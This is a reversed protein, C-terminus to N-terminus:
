LDIGMMAAIERATDTLPEAEFYYSTAMGKAMSPLIGNTSFRGGQRYAEYRDEATGTNERWEKFEEITMQYGDYFEKTRTDLLVCLDLLDRHVDKVIQQKERIYDGADPDEGPDDRDLIEQIENVKSHMSEEVIEVAPTEYPDIWSKRGDDDEYMSGPLHKPALYEFIRHVADRDNMKSELYPLATAYFELPPVYKHLEKVAAMGAKLCCDPSIAVELCQDDALGGEMARLFYEDMSAMEFRPRLTM